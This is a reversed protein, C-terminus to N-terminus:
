DIHILFKKNKVLPRQIPVIGPFAGKLEDSLGLNISAKITVIKKLGEITLHKKNKM